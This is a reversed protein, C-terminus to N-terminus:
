ECGPCAGPYPPIPGPPPCTGFWAVEWAETIQETAAQKLNAYDGCANDKKYGGLDQILDCLENLADVTMMAHEDAGCPGATTPDNEAGNELAKKKVHEWEHALAPGGVAAFWSHWPLAITNFDHAGYSRSGMQTAGVTLCGADVAGQIEQRIAPDAINALVKDLQAQTFPVVSAVEGGITTNLVINDTECEEVPLAATAALLLAPPFLSM